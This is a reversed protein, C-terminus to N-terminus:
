DRLEVTWYAENLFAKWSRYRAEGFPVGRLPEGVAAAIFLGAAGMFAVLSQLVTRVVGRASGRRFTLGFHDWRQGRLLLGVYALAVMVVIALLIVLQQL